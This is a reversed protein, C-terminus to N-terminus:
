VRCHGARRNVTFDHFMIGYVGSMLPMNEDDFDVVAVITKLTSARGFVLTM